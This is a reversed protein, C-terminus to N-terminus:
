KSFYHRLAAIDKSSIGKVARLEKESAQRVRQPSGFHKLLRASKTPGIGPITTLQSSIIRKQRKQRHFHIVKKHAEDRMQQLLFLLPSRPNLLLPENRHPLFIKEQSLGRDHRGEEKGLAILDVSAIDLEKLLDMAIHLQGKGGDVIILDPLDEEEKARILRRSLMQRLAGYDDAKEIGRIHFLRTRKPDRKGETFAVMCGVTDSGSINSIDYCEIRRPYRNLHCSETLDLLKRERLEKEDKERKFLAEANERALDVLARKEGKKPVRLTIHSLIEQLSKIEPFDFPLLLEKPGRKEGRYHQILFSSMLEGDEEIVRAFSFSESGILKGERFILQAIVVDECHRYLALADCDKGVVKVIHQESQTVHEIHQITNLLAAAQEFELKEAAREMEAYLEKLIERDQGKLFQIAGQVFTDYEQQTCKQVCPAICRKISYLICPRTRRKLEEDSCQRLPFLRTLLDFTQRAAYASTYPGFYLGDEKPKGKYRVLRIMPWPHRHNIMLSIFTKDDKLIANFKPQHKKILTNELLLAEIENSVVITDIHAIRSILFPVMARGDGSASFYSKLRQKLNKAKGVYIVREASDKMLYVGNQTPFRELDFPKM